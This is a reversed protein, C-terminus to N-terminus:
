VWMEVVSLFDDKSRPIRILYPPLAARAIELNDTVVVPNEEPIPGDPTITYARVVFKGPYDDPSDYITYCVLYEQTMSKDMKCDDDLLQPTKSSNARM